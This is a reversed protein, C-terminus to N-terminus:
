DRRQSRPTPLPLAREPTWNKPRGSDDANARMWLRRIKVQNNMWTLYQHEPTGHIRANDRQEQTIRRAQMNCEDVQRQLEESSQDRLEWVAWPRKVACCDSCAAAWQELKFRTPPAAKTRAPTSPYLSIDILRVASTTLRRMAAFSSLRLRNWSSLRSFPLGPAKLHEIASLENRRYARHRTLARQEDQIRM